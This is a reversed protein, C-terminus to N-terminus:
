YYRNFESKLQMAAQDAGWVNDIFQSHVKPKQCKRLIPKQLEEALEENSMFDNKIAKIAGITLVNMFQQLLVWGFDYKPNKAINFM